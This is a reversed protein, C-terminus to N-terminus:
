QCYSKLDGRFSDNSPINSVSSENVPNDIDSDIVGMERFQNIIQDYDKDIVDSTVCYEESIDRIIKTKSLGNDIMGLIKGATENLFYMKGEDTMILVCTNGIVRYAIGNKLKMTKVGLM